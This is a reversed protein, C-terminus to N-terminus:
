GLLKMPTDEDERESAVHCDFYANVPKPADPAIDQACREVVGIDLENRDVVESIRLGESM